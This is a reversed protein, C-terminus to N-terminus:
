AETGSSKRRREGKKSRRQECKEIHKQNYEKRSQTRPCFPCAFRASSAGKCKKTANNMHKNRNFISSFTQHCDPCSPRGAGSSTSVSASSPSSQATNSDQSTHDLPTNSPTNQTMDVSGETHSLNQLVGHDLVDELRGVSWGHSRLLAALIFCNRAVTAPWSTTQEGYMDRWAQISETLLTPGQRVSLPNSSSNCSLLTLIQSQCLFYMWILDVIVTAALMLAVSDLRIEGPDCSLWPVPLSPPVYDYREEAWRNQLEEDWGHFVDDEDRLIDAEPFPESITPAIKKFLDRFYELNNTLELDIESTNVKYM